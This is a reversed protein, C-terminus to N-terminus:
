EYKQDLSIQEKMRIRECLMTMFRLNHITALRFYTGDNIKFLHNLYGLSYNQCTLCDCHQSVPKATKIHKKDSVYIYEMWNGSLGALPDSDRTTFTYLRNHRADRTPMASDFIEYGLQWCALINKPHGVGLAHVPFENPVLSRTYGLIDELLNGKGDLPWGGFGFGDFGIELLADACKKRLDKRNGGQIVGFILPRNKGLKKQEILQDFTKKSRKAWAITREVSIEQESDHDEAHTCDDLCIVVDSGYGIQLQVSKEPTLQYKRNAGDPQFILGKDQIQGFKANQRILSYAQFGGSDTFIPKQWGSMKNLGGLSQVTTSGPRQMLHYSNMVVAEIQCNILDGADVSRVVGFTADPLYVPYIIKGHSLQLHDTRKM